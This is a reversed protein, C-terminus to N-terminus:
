NNGDRGPIACEPVETKNQKLVKALGQTANNVKKEGVDDAFMKQNMRKHYQRYAASTLIAIQRDYEIKVRRLLRGIGTGDKESTNVLKEFSKEFIAYRTSRTGVDDLESEINLNNHISRPVPLHRVEENFEVELRICRSQFSTNLKRSAALHKIENTRLTANIKQLPPVKSHVTNPRTSKSPSRSSGATSPRKRSLPRKHMVEDFNYVNKSTTNTTKKKRHKHQKKRALDLKPGLNSLLNTVSASSRQNKFKLQRLPQSISNSRRLRSRPASSPRM